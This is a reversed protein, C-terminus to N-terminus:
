SVGSRRYTLDYADVSIFGLMIKSGFVLCYLSIYKVEPLSYEYLLITLLFFRRQISLGKRVTFFRAM